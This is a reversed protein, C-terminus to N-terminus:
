NFVSMAWNSFTPPKLKSIPMMRVVKMADVIVIPVFMEGLVPKTPSLKQLYNRFLHKNPSAFIIFLNEDKKKQFYPAPPRNKIKNKLSFKLNLGTVFVNFSLHISVPVNISLYSSLSVALNINDKYSYLYTCESEPM